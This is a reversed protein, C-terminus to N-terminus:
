LSPNELHTRAVVLGEETQRTVTVNCKELMVGDIEATKYSTPRRHKFPNDGRSHESDFM